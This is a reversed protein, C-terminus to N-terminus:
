VKEDGDDLALSRVVTSFMKSVSLHSKYEGMREMITNYGVSRAYKAVVNADVPVDLALGLEEAAQTKHIDYYALFFARPMRFAGRLQNWGIKERSFVKRVCGRFDKVNMRQSLPVKRFLMKGIGWITEIGEGAIECHYKPSMRVTIGCKEAVYQLMTIEERFDAADALLQVLTAKTYKKFLERGCQSVGDVLGREYCVQLLGKAQGMWGSKLKPVDNRHPIGTDVALKRLMSAKM